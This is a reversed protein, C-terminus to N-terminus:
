EPPDAVIATTELAVVSFEDNLFDPASRVTASVAEIVLTYHDNCLFREDSPRCYKPIRVRMGPHLPVPSLVEITNLSRYEERGQYVVSVSIRKPLFVKYKYM